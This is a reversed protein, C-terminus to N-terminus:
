QGICYLTANTRIFLENDVAPISARINEANNEGLSVRNILEGDAADYIFVEGAHNQFWVKGDAVTPSARLRVRRTPVDVSWEVEGTEPDVRSLTQRQDSLVFFSGDAFAPTPVDTTVRRADSVWAVGDDEGAHTGELGLEVAYIPDGKPAPCLVVGGGAVPSPVLRWHGIRQPNWTGWRWLEEGTDPDHGTIADGGAVLLEERGEHTHPIVTAYSEQSEARAKKPREQRFITEGTAPDMALLFSPQGEAGRVDSDRQLVQLYLKGDYLTPSTSFTWLFAFQGYDAQINRKWLEQGEMDYAALTGEGYFFIVREGDTVPSPSAYNSRGTRQYGDAAERRWLEEGTARDLCIALLKERQPDTSSIFVRDGHIIPTAAAPGPMEAKWKVGDSQSFDTPLNSAESSGNFGPGRWHSWNGEQALSSGALMAVALAAVGFRACSGSM